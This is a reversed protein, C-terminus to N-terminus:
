HTLAYFVINIGLPYAYKESFTEFYWPDTGEEEWGDGLDTNFCIIMCMRNKDDYIARYHPTESGPKRRHHTIGDSRGAQAQTVGPIQPIKDLDFIGNFIPHDLDLDIPERHPFIQKLGRYFGDWERTGWFDDVMIFGGNLMYDRMIKAEDDTISIEGPEIMYIFPYHRMQEADIDVIVGKPDVNLSTLQQLRYSFNLEADPYDILWKARHGRWYGCEYRLRAFTFTDNPLDRDVQWTPFEYFEGGGFQRPDEHLYGDNSEIGFRIPELATRPSQALLLSAAVVTTFILTTPRVTVPSLKVSGSLM